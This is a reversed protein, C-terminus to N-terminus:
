GKSYYVVCEAGTGGIDLYLGNLAEVGQEPLVINEHTATADVIVKALVTGTAASANDYIIVTAADTGNAGVCIGHLRGPANSIIGDSTRLGSSTIAISNM